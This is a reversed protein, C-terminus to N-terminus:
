GGEVFPLGSSLILKDRTLFTYHEALATALLLHTDILYNRVVM